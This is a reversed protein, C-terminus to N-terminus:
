AVLDEFSNGCFPQLYDEVDRAERLKRQPFDRPLVLQLASSPDHSLHSNLLPGYGVPQPGKKITNKTVMCFKIKVFFHVLNVWRFTWDLEYYSLGVVPYKSHRVILIEARVCVTNIMTNTKIIAAQLFSQPYFM